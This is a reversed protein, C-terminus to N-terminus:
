WVASRVEAFVIAGSTRIVEKRASSSFVDTRELIPQELIVMESDSFIIQYGIQVNQGLTFREQLSPYARYYTENLALIKRESLVRLPASESLQYALPNVLPRESFPDALDIDPSLRVIFYRSGGSSDFYLINNEYISPVLAEEENEVASRANGYGPLSVAIIGSGSNLKLTYSPVDISVNEIFEETAHELSAEALQSSSKVSLFYLSFFLVAIFILFALVMEIHSFGRRSM